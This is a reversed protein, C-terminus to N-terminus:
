RNPFYARKLLSLYEEYSIERAGFMKLHETLFQVDLVVFGKSKLRELLKILAAKSAQSVRSFMSEGFFAGKIAIGYLGGILKGRQYVEVSHLFGLSNLKSYANILDESIWTRERKACERIVRMTSEDYRYELDAQSMFKRLSRPFNYDSPLIVARVEPMYWRIVGEDDAMPFAGQSYLRLMNGPELLQWDTQNNDTMSKDKTSLIEILTNFNLM